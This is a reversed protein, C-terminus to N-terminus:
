IAGKGREFADHAEKRAREEQEVEDIATRINGWTFFVDRNQVMTKRFTDASMRLRSAVADIRLDVDGESIASPDETFPFLNVIESDSYLKPRFEAEISM